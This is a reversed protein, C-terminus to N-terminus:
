SIGVVVKTEKNIDTGEFLSVLRRKDVTKSLCVCLIVSVSVFVCVCVYLVICYVYVRM